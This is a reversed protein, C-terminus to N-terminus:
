YQRSFKDSGRNFQNKQNELHRRIYTKQFLLHLPAQTSYGQYVSISRSANPASAPIAAIPNITSPIILGLSHFPTIWFVGYASPIILPIFMLRGFM